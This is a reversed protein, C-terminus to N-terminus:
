KGDDITVGDRVALRRAIAVGSNLAGEMYGAFKYCAYEGAFHLRDEIGKHLIPGMTTVEGPAAFSYSARTWPVSPWDMFRSAVFAEAFNPYRQRLEEAYAADRQDPPIASMADAGGGGSFAVMGAPADGEQGATSEWTAQVNGNSLSEPSLDDSLWFRNKLSILYKVNHGMQPRLVAPLPPDFKINDWVSPPVTLIADDATFSRGDACAVVVRETGITVESAPLNLLIREAGIEAALRQALQQNGGKCHFVQTETWYKELSGGKVATLLALYSQRESPVGTESVFDAIIARKALEPVDVSMVKEPVTTMDLKSAGPSDWPTDALIPGADGGISELIDDLGEWLPVAEEESLLKNDIVVPWAADSEPVELFELGFKKAYAAWLPHNSGILEGGGEVFRGPVFNDFTIVRGSIRDRAELVTVDYGAALLEFAATLGGFGAGIVIVSKGSPKARQALARPGSLLLATGAAASGLLFERRTLADIPTGFHAHLRAYLSRRM